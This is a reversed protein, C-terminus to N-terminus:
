ARGGVAVRLGKERKAKERHAIARAVKEALERLEILDADAEAPTVYGDAESTAVSSLAASTARVLDILSTTPDAEVRRVEHGIGAAWRRLFEVQAAIPARMVWAIRAHQKVGDFAAFLKSRSVGCRDAFADGTEGTSDWVARFLHGARVEISAVGQADTAPYRM